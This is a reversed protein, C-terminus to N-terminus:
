TVARAGHCYYSITIAISVNSNYWTINIVANTLPKVIKIKILTQLNLEEM